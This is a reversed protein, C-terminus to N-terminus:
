PKNLVSKIPRTIEENNLRLTFNNRDIATIHLEYTVDQFVIPYVDGVKFKKHGFLLISAGAIQVSGSPVVKGALLDLRDRDAVVVVVPAATPAQEVVAASPNFPNQRELQSPSEITPQTTLLLRATDLALMRKQPTAIEQGHLCGLALVVSIIHIITRM